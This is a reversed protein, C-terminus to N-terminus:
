PIAWSFLGVKKKVGNSRCFNNVTNQALELNLGQRYGSRPRCVLQIADLEEKKDLKKDGVTFRHLADYLELILKKENAVYLRELELDLSIHARMSDFGCEDVAYQALRNYNEESCYGDVRSQIFERYAQAPDAMPPTSTPQPPRINVAM